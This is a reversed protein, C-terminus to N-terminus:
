APGNQAFAIEVLDMLSSMAFRGPGYVPIVTDTPGGYEADPTRCFSKSCGMQDPLVTGQRAGIKRGQNHAVGSYMEEM